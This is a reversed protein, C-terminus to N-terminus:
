AVAPASLGILRGLEAFSIRANSQLINLIKWSIEDFLKELDFTNMSKRKAFYSLIKMKDDNRVENYSIPCNHHCSCPTATHRFSFTAHYGCLADSCISFSFLSAICIVNNSFPSNIPRDIAAVTPGILM